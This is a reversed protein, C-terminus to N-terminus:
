DKWAEEMEESRSVHFFELFKRQKPSPKPQLHPVLSHALNLISQGLPTDRIVPSADVIARGVGDYDNSFTVAIPLGVLRAVEADGLGDRRGTKRNLLLSVRDDLGLKKLSRMREAAFHLPIVEPTTVLFIRRSERM